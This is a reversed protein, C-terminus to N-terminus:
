IHAKMLVLDGDQFNVLYEEAAIGIRLLNTIENFGMYDLWEDLPFDYILKTLSESSAFTLWRLAVCKYFCNEGIVEVGTPISFSRLALCESFEEREIKRLNADEAILCSELGICGKLASEEIVEISAPILISRLSTCHSIAFRGIRLLKSGSEFLIHEVTNCKEFSSKKLVEVTVPVNVELERGFYRVVETSESTLLLNDEIKFNRSGSEIQINRILCGVFASGDIEETSAPLTISRLGSESFACDGIRRLRSSSAFTVTTMKYCNEFCRDGITEVSSPVHFAKLSNCISFASEGIEKLRTGIEFVIETVSFSPSFAGPGIVEIDAPVVV